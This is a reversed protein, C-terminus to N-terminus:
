DYYQPNIALVPNFRKGVTSISEGRHKYHCMARMVLDVQDADGAQLAETLRRNLNQLGYDM